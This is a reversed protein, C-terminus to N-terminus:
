VWEKDSKLLQFTTINLLHFLSKVIVLELNWDSNNCMWNMFCCRFREDPPAGWSFYEQVFLRQSKKLADFDSSFYGVGVGAVGFIRSGCFNGVGVSKVMLGDRWLSHRICRLNCDLTFKTLMVYLKANSASSQDEKVSIIELYNKVCKYDM